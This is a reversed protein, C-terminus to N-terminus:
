PTAALLNQAARFSGIAREMQVINEEITAREGDSFNWSFIMGRRSSIGRELERLLTKDEEGLFPGLDLESFKEFYAGLEECHGYLSENKRASDVIRQMCDAIQGLLKAVRQLRDREAAKAARVLGLLKLAFDVIKSVGLMFRAEKASGTIRERSRM